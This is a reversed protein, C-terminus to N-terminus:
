PRIHHDAGPAPEPEQGHDGVHIVGELVDSRPDSLAPADGLDDVPVLDAHRVAVVFV